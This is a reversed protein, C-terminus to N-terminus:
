QHKLRLMHRTPCINEMKALPNKLMVMFKMRLYIFLSLNKKILKKSLLEKITDIFILNSIINKKIFTKAEDISRDVHTESALNVVFDIKYKLFIKKFLKQNSIDAKIFKYNKFNIKKFKEPVSSYTQRDINIVFNNKTLYECLNTGIFGSGGTILYLNRM